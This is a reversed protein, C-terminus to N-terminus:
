SDTIARYHITKYYISLTMFNFNVINPLIKPMDDNLQSM